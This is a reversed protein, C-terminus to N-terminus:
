ASRAATRRSASRWRRTTRSRTCSGSADARWSECGWWGRARPAEARRRGGDAAEASTTRRLRIFAIRQGDPMWDAQFVDEALKRPEGGVLGIRYASRADGELRIFLVSSGDPSFRPYRDDGATLPAEGGGQLQKIWIRSAGDRTSAFALLRGDPSAAPDRDGGSFTLPRTRPPEAPGARRVAAGARRRCRCRAAPV